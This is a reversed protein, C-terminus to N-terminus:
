PFPQELAALILILFLIQAYKSLDGALVSCASRAFLVETRAGSSVRAFGQRFGPSVRAFGQRFGPSVRAFLVPVWGVVAGYDVNILV